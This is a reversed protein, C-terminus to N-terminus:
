KQLQKIYDEFTGRWLTRGYISKDPDVSIDIMLQGTQKDYDMKTIVSGDYSTCAATISHTSTRHVPGKDGYMTGFFKAM